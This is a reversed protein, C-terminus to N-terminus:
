MLAGAVGGLCAGTFWEALKTGRQGDDPSLRHGLWYAPGKMAGALFLALGHWPLGALLYALAAPLTIALGTVAMAVLEYLPRPAGSKWLLRLWAFEPEEDFPAVHRNGPNRREPWQADTRGLDLYAGHGLGVTLLGGLLALLWGSAELWGRPWGLAWLPGVALLLAFAARKVISPAPLWSPGGRWRYLTAGLLLGAFATLM